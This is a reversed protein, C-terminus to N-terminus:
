KCQVVLNNKSKIPIITQGSKIAGTLEGPTNSIIDYGNPCMSTATHYCDEVKGDKCKIVYGDKNDPTKINEVTTGCGSLAVVCVVALVHKM